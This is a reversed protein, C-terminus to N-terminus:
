EEAGGVADGGADDAAVEGEIASWGAGKNWAKPKQSPDVKAKPLKIEPKKSRRRYLVITKGIIQAVDSKTGTALTVSAEAASVPAEKGIKVKILERLELEGDVAAVVGPTVGHHGVQLVPKLPHALARLFQRQKSDLAM